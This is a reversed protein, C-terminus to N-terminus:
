KEYFYISSKSLGTQALHIDLISSQVFKIMTVKLQEFAIVIDACTHEYIM